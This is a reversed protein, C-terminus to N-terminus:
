KSEGRGSIYGLAAWIACLMVLGAADWSTM